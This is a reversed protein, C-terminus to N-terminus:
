KANKIENKNELNEKIELYHVEEVNHGFRWKLNKKREEFAEKFQLRKKQFYDGEKM